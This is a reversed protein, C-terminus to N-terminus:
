ILISVGVISDRLKVHSHVLRLSRYSINVLTYYITAAPVIMSNQCDNHRHYSNQDRSEKSSCVFDFIQSVENFENRDLHEVEGM